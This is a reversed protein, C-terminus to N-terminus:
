RAALRELAVRPELLGVALVEGVAVVRREADAHPQRAVRAKAALRAIRADLLVEIGASPKTRRVPMSSVCSSPPCVHRGTPRAIRVMLEPKFAERMSLRSSPVTCLWFMFRCAMLM